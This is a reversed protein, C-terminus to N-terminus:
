DSGIGLLKDRQEELSILRQKARDYSNKEIETLRDTDRSYIAVIIETREIRADLDRLDVDTKRVLSDIDVESKKVLNKDYDYLFAMGGWLPLIVGFVLSVKTLDINM